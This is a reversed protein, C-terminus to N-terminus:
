QAVDDARRDTTYAPYSALVTSPLINKVNAQFARKTKRVAKWEQVQENMWQRAATATADAAGGAAWMIISHANQAENQTYAESLHVIRSDDAARRQSPLTLKFSALSFKNKKRHLM